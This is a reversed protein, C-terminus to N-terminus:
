FQMVTQTHSEKLSWTCNHAGYKERKQHDEDKVLVGAVTLDTLARRISTIPTNEDFLIRQVEFPTYRGTPNRFFFREIKKEQTEASRRGREEDEPPVPNRQHYPM